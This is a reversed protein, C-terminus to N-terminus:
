RRNRGILSRGLRGRRRCRSSALGGLLGLAIVLGSPEPIQSAVIVVPQVTVFKGFADSQVSLNNLIANAQAVTLATTAPPGPANGASADMLNDNDPSGHHELGLNHALEHAMLEEGAGDRAAYESEIMYDDGLIDSCGVLGSANVGGCQSIGDVFYAYHVTTSDYLGFLKSQKLQSDIILLSTDEHFITPLYRVDIPNAGFSEQGYIADMLGDKRTIFAAEARSAYLTAVLSAAFVAVTFFRGYFTCRLKCLDLQM